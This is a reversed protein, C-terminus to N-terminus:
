GQDVSKDDFVAGKSPTAALSNLCNLLEEMREVFAEGAANAQDCLDSLTSM